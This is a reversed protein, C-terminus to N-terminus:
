TQHSGPRMQATIPETQNCLMAPSDTDNLIVRDVSSRAWVTAAREWRSTFNSCRSADMSSCSSRTAASGSASGSSRSRRSRTAMRKASQRLRNSSSPCSCRSASNSCCGMAAQGRGLYRHWLPFFAFWPRKWCGDCRVLGRRGSSHSSRLRDDAQFARIRM